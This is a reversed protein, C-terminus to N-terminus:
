VQGSRIHAIACQLAENIGSMEPGPIIQDAVAKLADPAHDVAFSFGVAKLLPLDAMSDGAAFIRNKGIGTLGILRRVASGKDANPGTIEAFHTSTFTFHYIAPDVLNRGIEALEAPDDGALTLKLIDTECASIPVVAGIREEMVGYNRFRQNEQLIRISKASYAAVSVNRHLRMIKEALEMCGSDMCRQWLIKRTGFDYIMSGCLLIAPAQINFADAIPQVSILHRGTCVSLIGGHERFVRAAELTSAAPPHNTSLLTGDIDALFLAKCLKLIM